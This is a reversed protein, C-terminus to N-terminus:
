EKRPSKYRALLQRIGVLAGGGLLFEIGTIPVPDPDPPPGPQAVSIIPLLVLLTVVLRKNWISHKGSETM